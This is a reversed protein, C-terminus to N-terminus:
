ISSSPFSQILMPSLESSASSSISNRDGLNDPSKQKKTDGAEDSSYVPVEKSTNSRKRLCNHSHPTSPHYDQSSIDRRALEALRPMERHVLRLLRSLYQPFVECDNHGGGILFLPELVLSEPLAAYLTQGHNVGIVEDCVGHIILTPSLIRPTRLLNPFVDCCYNRKVKPFAVRLGSMLPSHLVVAAVRFRTALYVTPVTGISQGYLVIQELPISFRRQLQELACEADAYLHKELPKGTSAGYGSYDYSMINVGLKFSLDHMFNLMLGIDVANGHSLLFTLKTSPNTKMYIMVISNGKRTSSTFVDIKDLVYSPLFDHPYLYRSLVLQYQSGEKTLSYSPEPPLFALKAAIRSPLPPCCLLHCISVCNLGNM